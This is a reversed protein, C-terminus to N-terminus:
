LAEAEEARKPRRQGHKVLLEKMQKALMASEKRGERLGRRYERQLQGKFMKVLHEEDPWSDERNAGERVWKAM